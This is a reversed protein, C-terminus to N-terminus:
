RRVLTKAKPSCEFVLGCGVSCLFLFLGAPTQASVPSPNGLALLGLEFGYGVLRPSLHLAPETLVGVRLLRLM